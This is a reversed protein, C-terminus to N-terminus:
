WHFKVQLAVKLTSGKSGIMELPPFLPGTQVEYRCFSLCHRRSAFMRVRRLQGENKGNSNGPMAAVSKGCIGEAPDFRLQQRRKSQDLLGSEAHVRVRHVTKRALRRAELDDRREGVARILHNRLNREVKAVV